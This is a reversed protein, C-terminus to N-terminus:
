VHQLDVHASSFKKPLSRALRACHRSVEQLHMYDLRIRLLRDITMAKKLCSQM